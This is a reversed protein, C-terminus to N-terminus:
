DEKEKNLKIMMQRLSSVDSQRYRQEVSAVRSECYNVYIGRQSQEMGTPRSLKVSDKRNWYLRNENIKTFVTQHM